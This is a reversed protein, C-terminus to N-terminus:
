PHIYVLIPHLLFYLASISLVGCRPNLPFNTKSTIMPMTVLKEIKPAKRKYTSFCRMM